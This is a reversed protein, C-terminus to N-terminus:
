KYAIRYPAKAVVTTTNWFNPCSSTAPVIGLKGTIIVIENNSNLAVSAGFGFLASDTTAYFAFEPAKCWINNIKLEIYPEINKSGTTNVAVVRSNNSLQAPSSASGNPYIYKIAVNNLDDITLVDSGAQQLKKTFNTDGTVTGGTKLLADNANGKALVALDYATKVAKSTAATTESNSSVSSDLQVVGKQAITGDQVDTVVKKWKTTSTSPTSNDNETLAIYLVSQYKIIADVPYVVASDWEPVGQQLLYLTNKDVRNFADNMWEMPPKSETQEITIGWGRAINPFPELEGTQADSAFILYDPKDQVKM